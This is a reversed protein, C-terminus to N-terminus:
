RCPVVGHRLQLGTRAFAARPPKVVSSHVVKRGAYTTEPNPAFIVDVKLGALESALAPVRDFKGESFRWEIVINQREVYGHESLGQKPYARSKSAPM